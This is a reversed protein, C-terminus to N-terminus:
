IKLRYTESARDLAPHHTPDIFETTNWRHQLVALERLYRDRQSPSFDSGRSKSEHHILRAQPIYYNRWSKARLKMCLDVDNYAVALNRADLGGVALYKERALVMCAATVATAERAVHTQAFYGPANECQGRHAHGAAGGMGVVVGAHQITGDPYLLKPGVAGADDRVAYRMMHRLWGRDVIEIDNNLLCLYSSTEQRVALNNLESFNFPGDAHLVSVRPDAGIAALYDLTETRISGNDVITVSVRPYDTAELVGGVCTKLLDVGDRTPVIVAVAPAAAPEPWVVLATGYRGPQAAGGEGSLSAAVVAVRASQEIESSLWAEPDCHVGIRPVHRVQVGQVRTLYMILQYVAAPDHAPDRGVSPASRAVAVPIACAATMFDQALFLDPDWNPKFWPSSRCRKSDLEDQDAYLIPPDDSTAAAASYSALIGPALEHGTRLPVLFRGHAAACAAELAETRSRADLRVCGRPLMDEALATLGTGSVFLEFAVQQRELSALSRLANPGAENADIHIWVACDTGTPATKPLDEVREHYAIWYQYADLEDRLIERLQNHARIRKGISFWWCIALVKAPNRLAIRGASKIGVIM